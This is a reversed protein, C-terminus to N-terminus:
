KVLVLALVFHYKHLPILSLTQSLEDACFNMFVCFCWQSHLAICIGVTHYPLAQLQSPEAQKLIHDRTVQLSTYAPYLMITVKTLDTRKAEEVQLGKACAKYKIYFHQLISNNKYLFYCM